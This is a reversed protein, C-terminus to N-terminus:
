SWCRCTYTHTTFLGHIHIHLLSVQPLLAFRVLELMQLQEEETVGHTQPLSLSRARSLALALALSLACARSLSLSRALSLSLSLSLFLSFCLSVSLSASVAGIEHLIEVQVARMRVSLAGRM